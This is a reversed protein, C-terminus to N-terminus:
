SELTKLNKKIEQLAFGSMIGHSIRIWPGATIPHIVTQSGQIAM